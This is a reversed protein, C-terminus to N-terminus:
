RQYLWIREIVAVAAAYDKAHVFGDDDELVFGDGVTECRVHVRQGLGHRRLHEQICDLPSLPPPSKAQRVGEPIADGVRPRRQFLRRVVSWVPHRHRPRGGYSKQRKRENTKM